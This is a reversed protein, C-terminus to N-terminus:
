TVQVLDYLMHSAAKFTSGLPDPNWSHTQCLQALERCQVCWSALPSCGWRLWVPCLGFDAGRLWEWNWYLWWWAEARISCISDSCFPCLQQMGVFGACEGAWQGSERTGLALCGAPWGAWPPLGSFCPGGELFVRVWDMHMGPARKNESSPSWMPLAVGADGVKPLHPVFVSVAKAMGFPRVRM